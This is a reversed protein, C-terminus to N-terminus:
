TGSCRPASRPSWTARREGVRAARARRRVARDGLGLIQSPSSRPGTARRGRGRRADASRASSRAPSSVGFCRAARENTIASRLLAVTESATGGAEGVCRPRDPHPRAWDSVAAGAVRRWCTARSSPSGCRRSSCASRRETSTTCSRPTSAPTPPSRASRRAADYGLTPSGSAPRECSRRAPGARARAVDAGGFRTARDRGRRGGLTCSSSGSRSRPRRRRSSSRRPRRARTRVEDPRRGPVRLTRGVLAASVARRGRAGRLGAGVRRDARGHGSADGVIEAYTGEAVVRGDAMVVLRDCEEGRGHLPHHRPRGTGADASTASRRGCGPALSRTSARRPNTSSWCTPGTRSRRCSRSGGSCASRSAGSRCPRALSRLAAPLRRASAASSRTRSSWTRRRPSTTTCASARRCTASGGAPRCRPRGGSCGRRGEPRRAAPRPADPDADDQGRRQRRAPGRGRRRGGSPRCRRGRRRDSRRTVRRRDARPADHRRGRPVLERAARARGRDRRRAPRAACRRSGAVADRARPSGSRGGRGGDGRARGPESAPPDTRSRRISGPCAPRSRTRPARPSGAARRRARAPVVRTRGRRPLRDVLVVAAGEAAAHAILWWLDARSVPDVGTTPEDLVLLEPRHVMARLVGLKQRMGGSLKGALRDACGGLGTRELAARCGDDLDRTPVGYGSAAFALNEDCRAPGPLDGLTSSLYGIGM